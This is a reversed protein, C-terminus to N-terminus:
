GHCEACKIGSDVIFKLCDAIPIALGMSNSTSSADVVAGTCVGVMEGHYNVLPGGSNGSNLAADTQIYDQGNVQRTASVVGATFSAPGGLQLGLPYGVAMVQTGASIDSSTEFGIKPLDVRETLLELLALDRDPNSNVVKATFKEGNSQSVQISTAGDIVHQNTIVYGHESVIAGSGVGVFGNGSVDIRVTALAVRRAIEPLMSGPTALAELTREEQRMNQMDTKLAEIDSAQNFYLFGFGAAFGALVVVTLTFILTRKM